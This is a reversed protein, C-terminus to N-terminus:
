FSRCHLSTFPSDLTRFAGFVWNIPQAPNKKKGQPVFYSAQLSVGRHFRSSDLPLCCALVAATNRHKNRETESKAWSASWGFGFVIRPKLGQIPAEVCPSCMSTNTRVCPVWLDGRGMEHNSCIQFILKGFSRIPPVDMMHFMMAHSVM